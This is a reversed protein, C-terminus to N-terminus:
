IAEGGFTLQEEMESMAYAPLVLEVEEGNARGPWVGLKACEVLRDLAPEIKERAAAQVAEPVSFVVVDYPRVNECTALKYPPMGLGAAAAGDCYWADQIHYGLKAADAGFKGPDPNRTMKLDLLVSCFKDFRARCRLGTRAHTWLVTLENRGTERLYRSACPDRLFADRISLATRYQAETLITRGENAARFDDWKNGFRRGNKAPWLAYEILFRDMELTATHCARGLRFTDRDPKEIQTLDWLHLPSVLLARVMSSSLEDRDHYVEAPEGEIIEPAMDPAFMPTWAKPLLPAKVSQARAM